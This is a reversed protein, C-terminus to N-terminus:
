KSIKKGTAELKKKTSTYKKEIETEAKSVLDDANEVGESVFEEGKKKASLLTSKYKEYIAELWTLAQDKKEDASGSIESLQSEFEDTFSDVLTSMKVKLTEFDNVDEFSTNVTNKIDTFAEKHVDVMEDIFLDLKSKTPDLPKKSKSTSQKYKTAIALGAVYGLALTIFRM